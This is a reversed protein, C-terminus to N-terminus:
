QASLAPAWHLHLTLVLHQTWLSHSLWRGIAPCVSYCAIEVHAMQPSTENESASAIWSLDHDQINGPYRPMLVLALPFNLVAVKELSSKLLFM